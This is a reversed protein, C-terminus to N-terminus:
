AADADGGEREANAAVIAELACVDHDPEWIDRKCMLCKSTHKM